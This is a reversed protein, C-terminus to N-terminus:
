VLMQRTGANNRLRGYVKSGATVQFDPGTVAQAEYFESTWAVSYTQQSAAAEKTTLLVVSAPPIYQPLKVLASEMVGLTLFVICHLSM